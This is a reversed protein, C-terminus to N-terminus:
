NLIESEVGFNFTHGHPNQSDIREFKSKESNIVAEPTEIELTEQEQLFLKLGSIEDIANVLSDSKNQRKDVIFERCSQSKICIKNGNEDLHQNCNACKSKKNTTLSTIKSSPRRVCHCRDIRSCCFKCMTRGM